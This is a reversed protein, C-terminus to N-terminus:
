VRAHGPGPRAAHNVAHRSVRHDMVAPTGSGVARVFHEHRAAPGLVTTLSLLLMLSALMRFAM